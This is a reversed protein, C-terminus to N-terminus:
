IFARSAAAQMAKLPANEMLMKMENDESLKETSTSLRFLGYLGNIMYSGAAATSMGFQFGAAAGICIWGLSIALSGAGLISSFFLTNWGICKLLSVVFDMIATQYIYANTDNFNEEIYTHYARDMARVLEISSSITFGLYASPISSLVATSMYSAKYCLGFLAGGSLLELRANIYSETKSSRPYLCNNKEESRILHDLSIETYGIYLSRCANVAKLLALAMGIFPISGVLPYSNSIIPLSLGALTSADTTNVLAATLLTAGSFIGNVCRAAEGLNNVINRTSSAM